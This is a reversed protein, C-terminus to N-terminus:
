CIKTIKSNNSYISFCKFPQIMYKGNQLVILYSTTEVNVLDKDLVAVQLHHFEIIGDNLYPDFDRLFM